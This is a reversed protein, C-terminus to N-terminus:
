AVRVDVMYFMQDHQGNGLGTPKSTVNWSAIDGQKRLRRLVNRLRPSLSRLNAQIDWRTDGYCTIPGDHEISIFIQGSEATRPHYDDVSAYEVGDLGALLDAVNEMVAVRRNRTDHSVELM